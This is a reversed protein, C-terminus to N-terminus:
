PKTGALIVIPYSLWIHKGKRYAGMGTADKGIDDTVLKRFKEANGAKPFSAKLQRELEIEMKYFKEVQDVLGAETFMSRLEALPLTRVNSPDRLEEVSDHCRTQAESNTFRDVVTVKGHPKVVRVMETLVAKPDLLHHFSFRTVVRSFSSDAYPLSTVDGIDWTINFRKKEQQLLRAQEIMAPVLDIGTIHKAVMAVASTLLGPGCAIDLVTDDESIKSTDIILKFATENAHAPVKKSFPIAQKTFQDLILKNHKTKDM